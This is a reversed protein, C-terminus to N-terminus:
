TAVSNTPTNVSTTTRVNPLSPVSVMERKTFKPASVANKSSCTVTMQYKKMLFRSPRHPACRSTGSAPRSTM